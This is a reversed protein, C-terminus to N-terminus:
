VCLCVCLCLIDKVGLGVWTSDVGGLLVFMQQM